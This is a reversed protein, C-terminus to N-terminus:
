AHLAVGRHISCCASIYQKSTDTATVFDKLDSSAFYIHSKQQLNYLTLIESPPQSLIASWVLLWCSWYVSEDKKESPPQFVPITKIIILNLRLIQYCFSNEGSVIFCPVIWGSYRVVKKSSFAIPAGKWKNILPYFSLHLTRTSHLHHYLINDVIKYLIKWM